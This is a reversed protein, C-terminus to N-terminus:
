LYPEGDLEDADNDFSDVNIVELDPITPARNFWFAVHDPDFDMMANDLLQRDHDSIRQGSEHEVVNSYNNISPVEGEDMIDIDSKNDEEQRKDKLDEMKGLVRSIDDKIQQFGTNFQIRRVAVHDAM